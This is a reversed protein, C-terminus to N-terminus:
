RYRGQLYEAYKMVSWIKLEQLDKYFQTDPDIMDMLKTINSEDFWSIKAPTVLKSLKDYFVKFKDRLDRLATDYMMVSRYCEMFFDFPNESQIDYCNTSKRMNNMHEIAAPRKLNQQQSYMVMHNAKMVKAMTQIMVLKQAEYGKIHAFYILCYHIFFVPSEMPFLMNLVVPICNIELTVVYFLLLSLLRTSDIGTKKDHFLQVLFDSIFECIYLDSLTLNEFSISVTKSRVTYSSFRDRIEQTNSVIQQFNSSIQEQLKKSLPKFVKECVKGLSDSCLSKFLKLDSHMIHQLICYWDDLSVTNFSDILVNILANNGIVRLAIENCVFNSIRNMELFDCAKLLRVLDDFSVKTFDEEKIVRDLLELVNRDINYLPIDENYREGFLDILDQLLTSEGIISSPIEKLPTGGRQIQVDGVTNDTPVTNDTLTDDSWMHSCKM